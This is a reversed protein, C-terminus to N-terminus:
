EIAKWGIVNLIEEGYEDVFVVENEIMYRDLVMNASETTQAIAVRKETIRDHQVSVLYYENYKIPDKRIDDERLLSELEELVRGIVQGCEVGCVMKYKYKEKMKQIIRKM